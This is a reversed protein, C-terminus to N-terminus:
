STLLPYVPECIFIGLVGRKDGVHRRIRGFGGEGWWKGWSNKIRWYKVGDSDTGYGVVLVAHWGRHSVDYRYDMIGGKYRQLDDTGQVTVIVPQKAVAKELSDETPTISRFGTIRAAARKNRKCKSRRAKYPYSSETSLGNEQVYAFAEPYDGGDCGDNELNCDVLEQVSLSISQLTKLYHVAEVSAAVSM